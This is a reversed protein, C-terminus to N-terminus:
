AYELTMKRTLSELTKEKIVEAEAISLFGSNASLMFDIEGRFTSIVLTNSNKWPFAVSPSHIEELEFSGYQHPINLRGMNSMTIDHTGPTSKLYKLMRGVSAHFYESTILLDEVKMAAIKATLDDKLKRARTWFDPQVGKELSLEAIPAFAFMHDAKLEPIFRRIDVPCILRGHAKDGKMERFADLVAVCLAAHVTTNESKCDASLAATNEADLRWHLLYSEGPVKNGGSPKFLFFLRALTAFLKASFVKKRDKSFDNRLLEEMSNFAPYNGLDHDPNDMVQLLDTLLAVMTTGDCICHACVLLLESVDAGKIWVVRVMPKDKETFPINFERKSELKWDADGNREKISFPIPGIQENSIFFPVGKEDEAIFARLLPHKQQVKDLANHLSDQSFSGRLKATFVCNVATKADVYMVREGIILKRKM